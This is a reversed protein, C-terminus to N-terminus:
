DIYPDPLPLSTPTYVTSRPAPEAKPEAKVVAPPEPTPTVEVVQEPANSKVFIVAVIALVVFVAAGVAIIANKLVGPNEILRNLKDLLAAFDIAKFKSAAPASTEHQHEREGKNTSYFKSLSEQPWKFNFSPWKFPARPEKPAPAEHSPAQTQPTTKPQIPEPTKRRHLEFVPKSRDRSFLWERSPQPAPPLERAARTPPPPPPEEEVRLEALMDEEVEAVPAPAPPPVDEEEIQVPAPPMAPARREPAPPVIPAAPKKDAIRGGGAQLHAYDALLPAPDIGLQEAYLKIFGRGYIPAAIRKFNENELDEVITPMIRTSEAVDSVTWGKEERAERLIKGLAM